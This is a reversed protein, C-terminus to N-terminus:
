PVSTPMARENDAQIQNWRQDFDSRAQRWHIWFVVGFVIGAIVNLVIFAVALWVLLTVGRNGARGQTEREGLGADPAVAPAESSALALVTAKAERFEVETLAGTQRLRQLKEIEDAIGM